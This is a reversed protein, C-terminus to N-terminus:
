SPNKVNFVTTWMKLLISSHKLPLGPAWMGKPLFKGYSLAGCASQPTRRLQSGQWASNHLQYLCLLLSWLGLHIGILGGRTPHPQGPDQPVTLGPSSKLRISLQLELTHYELKVTDM